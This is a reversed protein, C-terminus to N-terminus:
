PNISTKTPLNTCSLVQVRLVVVPTEGVSPSLSNNSWIGVGNRLGANINIAPFRPLRGAAKLMRQIRGKKEVTAPAQTAM